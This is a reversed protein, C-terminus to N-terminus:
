EPYALIRVIHSRDEGDKVTADFNEGGCTISRRIIVDVVVDVHHKELGITSCCFKSSIAYCMLIHHMVAALPFALITILVGSNRFRRVYLEELYVLIIVWVNVGISLVNVGIGLIVTACTRCMGIIGSTSYLRIIFGSITTVNENVEEKCLGRTGLGVVDDRRIEDEKM